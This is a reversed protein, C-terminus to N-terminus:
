SEVTQALRNELKPKSTNGFMLRALTSVVVESSLLPRWYRAISIPDRNGADWRAMEKNLATALSEASHGTSVTGFGGRNRIEVFAPIPTGVVTAGMALAENGVVPSGEWRSASLLVRADTLYRRVGAPNQPGVYTVQSHKKTLQDFMSRGAEGGIIFFKTKPRQALHLQIVNALLPANKQPDEWRGIAVVSESRSPNVDCTLFEDSVFHPVVHLRPILDQRGMRELFVSVNRAAETTELVSVDAAALSELRYQDEDKYQFLYRQALHKAAIVRAIAGKAASMRVRIHHATFQRISLLGDSDGRTLVTVGAKKMASVVGPYNFWTFAIVADLQLERYFAPDQLSDHSAAVVNFGPPGHSKDMCILLSEHGMGHLQRLYETMDVSGPIWPAALLVAIKM